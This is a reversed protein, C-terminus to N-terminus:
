SRRLALVTLCGVLSVALGIWVPWPQWAIEVRHRGPGVPVGVLHGDARMPRVAVGDVRAQWASFFTRSWVLVADSSTEIDAALWSAREETKLAEGTTALPGPIASSGELVVDTRADFEASRHIAMVAELDPARFTRTAVRVSPAAGELAYARVGEKANLTALERYPAPLGEDAVVTSVGAVRLEGARDPWPLAELAKRIARDEDAYAGDPDLDFAYGLGARTATLPWLEPSARRFFRPVTMAESADPLESPHANADVRSYIRGAALHPPGAPPADLLALLQPLAALALSCAVAWALLVPKRDRWLLAVALALSAIPSAKALITSPWAVLLACASALVLGVLLARRWARTPERRLWRDVAWGVLPVLALAVVYWWKVPFRIRGGLSLVPYLAKAAPLYKGLSLVAAGVAVAAFAEEGHGRGGGHLALLGLVVLGVHLTWLYPTHNDFFRHGTFGHPGRLDPRGYPFPIVQELLRVPHVSTGTATIFPIPKRERSSDGLIQVTAAIQPAAILASLLFGAALGLTTRALRRLPTDGRRCELAVRGGALAFTLLAVVPEGALIELGGWLGVEAVAHREGPTLDRITFRLERNLVQGRGALKTAAALVFPALALALGSNFFRWTSIFVGSLVFSLAAIEAAERPVGEARAWRRAGVFALVLALVFRLGFAIPLPLLVALITDPFFLGFNPNGALPQGLSAGPHVFPIRGARLEEAICARAPLHTLTADQYTVIVRGLAMPLLVLLLAARLAKVRRHGLGPRALLEL